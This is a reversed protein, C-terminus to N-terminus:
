QIIELLANTPGHGDPITTIRLKLYKVILYMIKKKILCQKCFIRKQIIHGEKLNSSRVFLLVNM